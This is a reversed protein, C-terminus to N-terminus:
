RVSVVQAIHILLKTIFLLYPHICPESGLLVWFQDRACVHSSDILQLEPELPDLARKQGECANWERPASIYTSCFM